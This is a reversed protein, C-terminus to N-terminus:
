LDCISLYGYRITFHPGVLRLGENTLKAAIDAISFPADMSCAADLIARREPTCRCNMAQLSRALTAHANQIADEQM